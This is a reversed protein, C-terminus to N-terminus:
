RDARGSSGASNWGPTADKPPNKRFGKGQADLFRDRAVGEAEEATTVDQSARAEDGAAREGATLAGQAADSAAKRALAAADKARDAAAMAAEAAKEAKVAATEAAEAAEVALGAISEAAKAAATDREASRWQSLLEAAQGHEADPERARGCPVLGRDV